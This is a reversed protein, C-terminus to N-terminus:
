TDGFDHVQVGALLKEETVSMRRNSVNLGVAEEKLAQIQQSFILREEHVSLRYEKFKAKQEQCRAELKAIRQKLKTEKESRREEYKGMGEKVRSITQKLMANEKELESAKDESSRALERLKELEDDQGREELKKNAQELAQQLRFIEAQDDRPSAESENQEDQGGVVGHRELIKRYRDVEQKYQITHATKRTLDQVLKETDVGDDTRMNSAFAALRREMEAVKEEEKRLKETLRLTEMERKRAYSRASARYQMVRTIELSTRKRYNEFETKWYQGSQSRPDDIDITNDCNETVAASTITQVEDKRVGDKTSSEEVRTSELQKSAEATPRERADHLSQTLRSRPRSKGDTNSSMWKSTVSGASSPATSNSRTLTREREPDEQIPTDGFSVTKRRNSITGPTVLISETPSASLQDSNSKEKPQQRIMVAETTAQVTNKRRLSSTERSKMEDSRASDNDEGAPTGFIASKFARMAFVPAPTEPPEMM